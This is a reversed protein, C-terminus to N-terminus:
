DLPRKMFTASNCHIAFQASAKMAAPASARDADGFGCHRFFGEASETFLYVTRIGLRRAHALLEELMQEGLGQGRHCSVTLFSRLLADQGYLELGGVGIRWGSADTFAFFRKHTGDLDGALLNNEALVTALAGFDAEEIPQLQIMGGV